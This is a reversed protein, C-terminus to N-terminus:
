TEQKEDSREALLFCVKEWHIQHISTVQLQALLYAPSIHNHKGLVAHLGSKSLKEIHSLLQESM